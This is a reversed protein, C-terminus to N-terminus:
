DEWDLQTTVPMRIFKPADALNSDQDLKPPSISRFHSKVEFARWQVKNSDFSNPKIEDPLFMVRMKESFTDPIEYTQKNVSKVTGRSKLRKNIEIEGGLNLIREKSMSYKMASAWRCERILFYRNDEYYVLSGIFKNLEKDVDVDMTTEREPNVLEFEIKEDKNAKVHGKIGIELLRTIIGMGTIAHCKIRVVAESGLTSPITLKDVIFRKNAKDIRFVTGVPELTTPRHYFQWGEELIKEPDQGKKQWPWKIM